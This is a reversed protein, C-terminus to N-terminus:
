VATAIRVLQVLYAVYALVMIAGMWRNIRRFLFAFCWLLVPGGVFMVIDLVQIDDVQMPRILAAGGLVFFVNFVNSGVVNGIAM